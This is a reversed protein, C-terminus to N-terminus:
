NLACYTTIQYQPHTVSVIKVVGNKDVEGLVNASDIYRIAKFVVKGTSSDIEKTRVKYEDEPIVFEAETIEYTNADFNMIFNDNLCYNCDGLSLKVYFNYIPSSISELYKDFMAKEDDTTYSKKIVISEKDVECIYYSGNHNNRCFAVAKGNLKNMPLFWNPEGPFNGVKVREMQTDSVMEWHYLEFKYDRLSDPLYPPVSMDEEPKKISLLDRNGTMFVYDDKVPYRRKSPMMIEGGGYYPNYFSDNFYAVEGKSIFFGGVADEYLTLLEEVIETPTVTAKRLGAASYYLIGKSYEDAPIAEGWLYMPCDYIKNTIKDVLIIMNVGEIAPKGVGIRLYMRIYNDGCKEINEIYTDLEKGKTDYIRVKTENGDKDVKWAGIQDKPDIEVGETRTASAQRIYIYKADSINSKGLINKIEDASMEEDNNCAVFAVMTLIAWFCPRIIMRLKMYESQKNTNCLYLVSPTTQLYKGM